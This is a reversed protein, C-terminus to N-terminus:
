NSEAKSKTASNDKSSEAQPPVAPARNAGSAGSPKVTGSQAKLPSVEGLPIIDMSQPQDDVLSIKMRGVTVFYRPDTPAWAPADPARVEQGTLGRHFYWRLTVSKADPDQRLLAAGISGGVLHRNNNQFEDLDPGDQWKSTMAMFKPMQQLRHRRDSPWVGEPLELTEQRGDAYNRTAELHYDWDYSATEDMMPLFSFLRYDYGHDLWLQWLYPQLLPTNVKIRILLNSTGADTSSIIGLGVAFLHVFLLFSVVTRFLESPLTIKQDSASESPVAM